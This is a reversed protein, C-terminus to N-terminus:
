VLVINSYLLERLVWAVQRIMLLTSCSAAPAKPTESVHMSLVTAAPMRALPHQTAPCRSAGCANASGTMCAPLLINGALNDQLPQILKAAVCLWSLTLHMISTCCHSRVKTIEDPSALLLNELKLDRHVVNRCHAHLTFIHSTHM